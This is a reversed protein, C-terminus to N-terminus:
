ARVRTFTDVDASMARSKWAGDFTQRVRDPESPACLRAVVALMRAAMEVPVGCQPYFRAWAPANTYTCRPCNM